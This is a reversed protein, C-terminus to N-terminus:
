NAVDQNISESNTSSHVNNDSQDVKPEKASEGILYVDRRVVGYCTTYTGNKLTIIAAKSELEKIVTENCNSLLKDLNELQMKIVM